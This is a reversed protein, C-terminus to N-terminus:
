CIMIAGTLAEPLLKHDPIIAVNSILFLEWVVVALYFVAIICLVSRASIKIVRVVTNRFM